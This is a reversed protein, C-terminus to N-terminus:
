ARAIHEAVIMPFSFRPQRKLWAKAQHIWWGAGRRVSLWRPELGAAVLASDLEQRGLHRDGRGTGPRPRKAVPTDLIVLRGTPRLARACRGLTGELDRAYHLSACLVVLGLRGVRLPPHELDGQLLHMAPLPGYYAQAAALGFQEDRSAEVALVRYGAQALRYSLWGFGAGLDAAPGYVPDPGERALIAMLACFSERRVQWYLASYGPPQGYPLARAQEPSQRVQGEVLRAQRYEESFREFRAADERRLLTPIGGAVPFQEGCGSCRLLDGAEGGVELRAQCYPCGMGDQWDEM